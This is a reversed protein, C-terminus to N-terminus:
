LTYAETKELSKATGHNLAKFIYIQLKLWSIKYISIDVTYVNTHSRKGAYKRMYISGISRASNRGVSKASHNM